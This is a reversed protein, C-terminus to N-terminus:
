PRFGRVVRGVGSEERRGVAILAGGESLWAHPVGAAPAGEPLAVARGARADAEATPALVVHPLARTAAREVGLLREALDPADLKAAEGEGFPGSRVRRLATLHGLTGLTEALDRALSRVYYGKGVVVQLHLSLPGSGVVEISRVVVDRDALEVVEGRRAREYAPRGDTKIASYAPPAQRTRAREHALAADLRPGSGRAIEAAVDAPVPSEATVAGEADLTDTAAGFTLEAVYAKDHATLYPVLKTAEGVAVVLVGTAMPDLTGAHGVERTKLARRVRAVVDHSTPGRPKDIVLVGKM